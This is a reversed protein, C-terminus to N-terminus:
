KTRYVLRKAGFIQMLLFIRRWNLNFCNQPNKRISACSILKQPKAENKCCNSVVSDVIWLHHYAIVQIVNNRAIESFFFWEAYEVFGSFLVM